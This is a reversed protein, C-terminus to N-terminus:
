TASQLPKQTSIQEGMADGYGPALLGSWASANRLLQTPSLGLWAQFERNLHAQDAYGQELALDALAPRAGIGPSLWARTTRRLRALRRWAMPAPLGAQRLLRSLSRPAVGLARAAQSVGPALALAQLAERVGPACRVEHAVWDRVGQLSDCGTQAVYDAFRSADFQAGPEFRLGEFAEGVRPSVAYARAVRPASLLM